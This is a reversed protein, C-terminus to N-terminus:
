CRPNGLDGAASGDGKKPEEISLRACFTMFTRGLALPTDRSGSTADCTRADVRAGGAVFEYRLQVITFTAHWFKDAPRQAESRPGLLNIAAFFGEATGIAVRKVGNHNPNWARDAWAFSSLLLAGQDPYSATPPLPSAEFIPPLLPSAATPSACGLTTQSVDLRSPTHPRVHPRMPLECTLARATQRPASMQSAFSPSRAATSPRLTSLVSRTASRKGLSSLAMATSSQEAAAERVEWTPDCWIRTTQKNCVRSRLAAM